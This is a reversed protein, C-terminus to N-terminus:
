RPTCLTSGFVQSDTAVALYLLLGTFKSKSLKGFETLYCTEKRSSSILDSPENIPRLSLTQRFNKRELPPDGQVGGRKDGAKTNQRLQWMRRVTAQALMGARAVSALADM